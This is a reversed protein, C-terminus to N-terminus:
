KKRREQSKSRVDEQGQFLDANFLSKKIVAGKKKRRVNSERFFSGKFFALIKCKISKRSPLRPSHLSIDNKKWLFFHMQKKIFFFGNRIAM